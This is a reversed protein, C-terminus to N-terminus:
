NTLKAIRYIAIHSNFKVFNVDPQQSRQLGVLRALEVNTCDADAQLATLLKVDIEDLEVAMYRYMM